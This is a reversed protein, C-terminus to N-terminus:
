KKQAKAIAAPLAASSKVRKIKGNRYLIFYTPFGAFPFHQQVAATEEKGVILYQPWPLQEQALAKRWALESRDASINVFQVEPHERGLKKLKHFAGRCPGCWSAWIDVICISDRPQGATALFDVLRPEPAGVQAYIQTLACCCAFFLIQIRKKM